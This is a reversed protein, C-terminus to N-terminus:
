FDFGCQRIYEDACEDFRADLTEDATVSKEPYDAKFGGLKISPDAATKDTGLIKGLMGAYQMDNESLMITCGGGFKESVKKAHSCLFEIYGASKTFEAVLEGTRELVSDATDKKIKEISSKRGASIISCERNANSKLEALERETRQASELLIKERLSSLRGENYEDAKRVISNEEKKAENRIGNILAEVSKSIDSM